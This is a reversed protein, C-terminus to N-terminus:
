PRTRIWELVKVLKMAATDHAPNWHNSKRSVQIVPGKFFGIDVDQPSIADGLPKGERRTTNPPLFHPYVDADPYNFLIHFAIWGTRPEYMDGLFVDNVRVFAGGDNDPKVDVTHAPFDSKIEEVAEQVATKM